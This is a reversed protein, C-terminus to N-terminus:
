CCSVTHIQFQKLNLVLERYTVRVGAPLRCVKVGLGDVPSFHSDPQKQVPDTKNKQKQCAGNKKGHCVVAEHRGHMIDGISLECLLMKILTRQKKKKVQLTVQRVTCGIFLLAVELVAPASTTSKSCCVFWWTGRVANSGTHRYQQLGYVRGQQWLLPKDASRIKFSSM